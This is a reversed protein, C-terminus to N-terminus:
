NQPISHNMHRTIVACDYFWCFDSIAQRRMSLSWTTPSLGLVLGGQTKSVPSDRRNVEILPMPSTPTSSEPFSSLLKLCSPSNFSSLLWSTLRDVYTGVMFVYVDEDSFETPLRLLRIRAVSVADTLIDGDLSSSPTKSEWLYHCLKLLLFAKMIVLFGVFFFLFYLM